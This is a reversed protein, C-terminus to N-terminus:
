DERAKLQKQKRELEENVANMWYYLTDRVNEGNYYVQRFANDVNRTVYYGGPVEPVEVVNEWQQLLMEKEEDTWLSGKFAELNAPTHRGLTSLEAEIERSYMEQVEASSWWELFRWAEDKYECDRLIISCTGSASTSRNISGDEAPTGPITTMIWQGAIEPAAESLNNYLGYSSIVVPMEGTRFRNFDDKYLSFDYQVYFDSWQKFAEYAGTVMLNTTVMDGEEQYVSIGRQALLTPLLNITGIGNNMTAYGDAYPLGIALSNAQLVPLLATLEQWTDPIKLGLQEFIDTRIYMVYFEQTEPIAYTSGKYEYPVFASAAYQEKLGVFGEMDDLSAVAGRFALNMAEGRTTFINVDPGQGALTAKVLAGEVLSINVGIGTEPTFYSDILRKMVNAQDRGKGMWVTLTVSPNEVGESAVENYSHSFSGVFAKIEHGVKSLFSGNASPIDAESGALYFYDIQLPQQEFELVWEALAEINTKFVPLRKAITYPKEVFSEMQTEMQTLIRASYCGKGYRSELYEIYGGLDGLIAGLKEELDPIATELNYDRYTDPDTGTIMIIERYLSNIDQLTKQMDEIMPSMEGLVVEMRLTHTGKTLYFLYPGDEGGLFDSQWNVDYEFNLEGVEAFPVQSDIELRRLSSQGKNGNQRYRLGLRYFGDEPAEVQWEIWQGDDTWNDGGITNYRICTAHYPITFPSSRDYVAYLRSSSKMMPTEAEVQVYLDKAVEQKGSHEVLYEAYTPVEERYLRVYRLLAAQRVGQVELTHEGKELELAIREKKALRLPEEMWVYGEMQTPRIEDGSATHRFQGADTWIRTLTVPSDAVGNGDLRVDLEPEQGNGELAMYGVNLYYTGTEPVSFTWRSAEEDEAVRVSGDPGDAWLYIGDRDTKLNGEAVAQSKANRSDAGYPAFLSLVGTVVLVAALGACVILTRKQRKEM